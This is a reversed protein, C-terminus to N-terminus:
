VDILSGKKQVGHVGKKTVICLSLPLRSYTRIDRAVFTCLAIFPCICSNPRLHRGKHQMSSIFHVSLRM